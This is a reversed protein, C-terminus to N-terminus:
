SPKLEFISTGWSPKVRSSVKMARARELRFIEARVWRQYTTLFLVFRTFVTQSLGRVQVFIVQFHTRNFERTIYRVQFYDNFSGLFTIMFSVRDSFTTGPNKDWVIDDVCYTRNNYKTIVRTGILARGVAIKFNAKNAPFFTFLIIVSYSLFFLWDQDHVNYKKFDVRYASGHLQVIHLKSKNPLDCM